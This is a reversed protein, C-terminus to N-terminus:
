KGDDTEIKEKQEIHGMSELLNLLSNIIIGDIDINDVIPFHERDKLDQTYYDARKIEWKGNANHLMYGNSKAAECKASRGPRQYVFYCDYGAYLNKFITGKQM